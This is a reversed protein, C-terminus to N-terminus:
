TLHHLVLSVLAADVGADEFPLDQALGEHWRVNEAGPKRQALALIQPDGDVGTVDADPRKGALALTLSGTGCGVEVARGHPPLDAAVAAILHPRWRPERMTLAIGRDYSSTLWARGAAPVYREGTAGM